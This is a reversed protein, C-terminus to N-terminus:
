LVEKRAAEKMRRWLLSVSLISVIATAAAGALFSPWHM